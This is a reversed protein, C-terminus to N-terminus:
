ALRLEDKPSFGEQYHIENSFDPAIHDMFKNYVNEKKLIFHELFYKEEETVNALINRSNERKVIDSGNDKIDIDGLSDENTLISLDDFLEYIASSSSSVISNGDNNETVHYSSRECLHRGDVSRDSPPTHDGTSKDCFIPEGEESAQAENIQKLVSEINEFLFLNQEENENIEENEDLSNDPKPFSEFLGQFKSAINKCKSTPFETAKNISPPPFDTENQENNPKQEKWWPNGIINSLRFMNNKRKKNKDQTSTIVIASNDEICDNDVFLLKHDFRFTYLKSRKQKRPLKEAIIITCAEKDLRKAVFTSVSSDKKQFMNIMTAKNCKTQAGHTPNKYEYEVDFWESTHIDVSTTVAYQLGPIEGIRNVFCKKYPVLNKNEYLM